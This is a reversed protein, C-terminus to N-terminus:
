PRAYKAAYRYIILLLAAKVYVVESMYLTEKQFDGVPSVVGSITAITYRRM